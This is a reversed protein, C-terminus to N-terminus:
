PGYIEQKNSLGDSPCSAPDAVAWAYWAPMLGAYQPWLSWILGWIGMCPPPCPTLKTPFNEKRLNTRLRYPHVMYQMDRHMPLTITGCHTASDCARINKVRTPLRVCFRATRPPWKFITAGFPLSLPVSIIPHRPEWGDNWVGQVHLIGYWAVTTVIEWDYYQWAGGGFRLLALCLCRHDKLQWLSRGGCCRLAHASIVLVLRLFVVM